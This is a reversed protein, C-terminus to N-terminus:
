VVLGGFGVLVYPAWYFPHKYDAGEGEMEITEITSMATACFKKSQAPAVLGAKEALRCQKVMRRFTAVASATDTNYLQIQATRWCRALSVPASVSVSATGQSDEKAYPRPKPKTSPSVKRAQKLARFFYVMLLASAEDSVSWLAGLFASAGSSLVIHSFGLMDNGVTEEGLGSVCAEFIVLAANSRLRSLDLVRFPPHLTLLSEWASKENQNGHTAIVMVNSSEYLDSFDKHSAVSTALPVTDFQRAIQISAIASLYLPVANSGSDDNYIIGVGGEGDRQKQALRGLAALSPCMSVDKTLFLPQGELVLASFPFKNLSRSPVFIIHERDKVFQSIPKLIIVSVKALADQCSSLSPMGSNERDRFLKLCRLVQREIETDTSDEFHIHEIGDSGICLILMGDRSINIHVVLSDSSIASYITKNLRATGDVEAGLKALSFSDLEAELRANIKELYKERTEHGDVFFERDDLQCSRKDFSVLQHETLQYSYESWAQLQRPETAQEVILLDLLARAHGMDLFRLVQEKWQTATLQWQELNIVPGDRNESQSLHWAVRALGFFLEGSHIRDFLNRRDNIDALRKYKTEVTQYANIYWRLASELRGAHENISGIWVMDMWDHERSASRVEDFFSPLTQEVRQLLEAGLVWYKTVFCLSIYQQADQKQKKITMGAVDRTSEEPLVNGSQGGLWQPMTLPVIRRAKEFDGLQGLFIIQYVDIERSRVPLEAAEFRLLAEKLCTDAADVDAELRLISRRRESVKEFERRLPEVLRQILLLKDVLPKFASQMSLINLM